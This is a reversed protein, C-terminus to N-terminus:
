CSMHVKHIVVQVHLMCCHQAHLGLCVCEPVCLTAQCRADYLEDAHQAYGAHMLVTAMNALAAHPEPRKMCDHERRAHQARLHKTNHQALQPWTTHKRGITALATCNQGHTPCFDSAECANGPLCSTVQPEKPEIKNLNICLQGTQM